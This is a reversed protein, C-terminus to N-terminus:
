NSRLGSCAQKWAKRYQMEINDMTYHTLARTIGNRSYLEIKEPDALLETIANRLPPVQGPPICLGCAAESGVALAEPIGGVDTAILACGMAMAEIVVMPFGETYSPLVLIQTMRMRELVEIHNLTGTFMLWSGGNRSAALRELDSKVPPEYPGIMILEPPEELGLCSEVLEYVGKSKLIHGVFILRNKIRNGPKGQLNEAIRTTEVSLPNPINALHLIGNRSLTMFSRKDIVINRACKKAVRILMRWEWNKREQLEPIRGFHWHVIVPIGKRGALFIILYDRLLSLSASTALHIVSPKDKLLNLTRYLTQISNQVGTLIRVWATENTVPRFRHSTNYHVIEYGTDHLRIFDLLSETVSEIGGPPPPAPAIFLIRMKSDSPM